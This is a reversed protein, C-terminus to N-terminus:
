CDDDCDNDCCDDDCCDDGHWRKNLLRRPTGKAGGGGVITTSPSQHVAAGRGPARIAGSSTTKKGAVAASVTVVLSVLLAVALSLRLIRKTNTLM